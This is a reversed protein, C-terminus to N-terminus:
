TSVRPQATDQSPSTCKPLATAHGRAAGSRGLARARGRVSRGETGTGRNTAGADEIATTEGEIGDESTTAEVGDTGVAGVGTRPPAGNTADPIEITEGTTAGGTGTAAAETGHDRAAGDGTAAVGVVEGALATGTAVEEGVLATGAVIETEITM